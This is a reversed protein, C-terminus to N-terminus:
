RLYKFVTAVIFVLFNQVLCKGNLYTMMIPEDEEYKQGRYTLHSACYWDSRYQFELKQYKSLFQLRAPCDRHLVTNHKQHHLIQVKKMVPQILIKVFIFRVIFVANLPLTNFHGLLESSLDSSLHHHGTIVRYLLCSCQLVSYVAIGQVSSRYMRTKNM